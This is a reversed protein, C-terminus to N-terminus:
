YNNKSNNKLTSEFFKKLFYKSQNKIKIEQCFFSFDFFVQFILQRQFQNKLILATLGFLVNKLIL